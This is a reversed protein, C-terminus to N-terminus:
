SYLSKSNRKYLARVNLLLRDRKESVRAFKEVIHCINGSRTYGAKHLVTYCFHRTDISWGNVKAVGWYNISTKLKSRIKGKCQCISGLWLPTRTTARYHCAVKVLYLTMYGRKIKKYKETKIKLLIWLEKWLSLLSISYFHFPFPPFTQRIIKSFM